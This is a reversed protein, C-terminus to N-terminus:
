EPLGAQVQVLNTRPFCLIVAIIFNVLPLFMVVTWWGSRGIDRFRGCVAVLMYFWAAMSTIAYPWIFQPQEEMGINCATLIILYGILTLVYEKRKFLLHKM